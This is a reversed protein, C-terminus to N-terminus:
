RAARGEQGGQAAAGGGARVHHLAPRLEPVGAPPPDRRRDGVRALRRGQLRQVPGQLPPLAPTTSRARPARDGPPYGRTRARWLASGGPAPARATFARAASSEAPQGRGVGLPAIASTAAAETPRVRGIPASPSRRS